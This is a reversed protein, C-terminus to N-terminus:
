IIGGGGWKKVLTPCEKYKLVAETVQVPELMVKTMRYEKPCRSFGETPYVLELAILHEFAKLAVPKKYLKLGVGGGRIAAKDMFDKYEDYVMEFNFTTIDRSLLHKMAIILCLELLSVGKLLETKADVRQQLSAVQFDIPKLFPQASSLRSIPEFSIKFFLRIDKSLDYIRQVVKKFVSDEFLGEISRNFALRYESHAVQEDVELTNKIIKSFEELTEPPFLYIQRHSFRSKVRKELLELADLRCTLGIIAVPNQSSQAVDFLNYLLAQKPHQAFLDFEDLVFIIPITQHSGQKLVSLLYSMSEAFSMSTHTEMQQEVRLQRIIERLALRDDTLVMGNLYVVFFDRQSSRPDVYKGEIDAVVRNILSTKGTGRNGILLCSNSEGNLVTQEILDYLKRYQADLNILQRPTEREALRRLILSRAQAVDKASWNAATTNVNPGPEDKDITDNSSPSPSDDQLRFRKPSLSIDDDISRKSM